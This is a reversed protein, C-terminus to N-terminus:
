RLADPLQEGALNPLLQRLAEKCLQISTNGFIGQYQKVLKNVVEKNDGMIEIQEFDSSVKLGEVKNAQDVAYPGILEKHISIILKVLTKTDGNM